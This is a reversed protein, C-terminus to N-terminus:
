IGNSSDYWKAQARYLNAFVGNKTLLENLSGDEVIKGNDFVLIRDVVSAIGLRHSVLITTKDETLNSFNKYINAESIPDLTATPEDLVYLCADRRMLARTIAIKQWQGGSLNRGDRSFIGLMENLSGKEANLIEDAGTGKMIKVITEDENDAHVPVSININNRITDQYQCFQQFVASISRRTQPIVSSIPLGNIEVAGSEPEYLGCILNIFTSKGSGNAGVIAIKEGQKISVSIGDLAHKNSGPYTFTVNDFRIDVKDYPLVNASSKEKETDLLVFFDEMYKMDSFISISNVLLTTTISQLQGAATIILMFSGLGIAPNDFIERVSLIVVFFYVGNRLIDAIGNILVHKRTIKNKKNVWEKGLTKWKKKIYPYLGLYRIEKISENRRCAESYNLVLRGEKMFKTRHRYTEDKQLMSLFVAPVSTVILILFILPSVKYLIVTISVFSIINALWGFILAIGGAATNAAFQNVFDVKERFNGYNEIYKYPVSSLLNMMQSKIYRKICASDKGAFYKTLFATLTQLIYLSSLLLFSTIVANFTDPNDLLAQVGNTFKELQLSILSPIFAAFLGIISVIISIPTKIKLSLALSKMFYKFKTM